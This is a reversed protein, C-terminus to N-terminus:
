ARPMGWTPINRLQDRDALQNQLNQLEAAWEVANHTRYHALGAQQVYQATYNPLTKDFILEHGCLPCRAVLFKATV